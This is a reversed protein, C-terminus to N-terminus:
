QNAIANFILAMKKRVNRLSGEPNNITIAFAYKKGSKSHIYGAYSKIRRMTGSKAFVRGQGAQGKCIVKLTGSEGAVPLSNFFEKSYKATNMYYLLSTFHTASIANMRSLGCGDTLYISTFGLKNKWYSEIIELGKKSSGNGTKQYAILCVLHEAFLNISKFNTKNIIDILKEGSHTFILTRDTYDNQTLNMERVSKYDGNFKIESANLEQAFLYALQKEPDPLSGKVIFDEKNVPLTGTIFREMSFPAGYIYSNDGRKQSSLVYNHYMLEPVFPHIKVLVTPQNVKAGTKFHLQILNDGVTLGSPGAGYYNGMDVWSWGDPAGNYGFESADAIVNGAITKIGIKQLEKVWNQLFDYQHEESFFYKSGLSPDGGGRIWINGHLVGNSDINGDSYFRTKARYNPGLLELATATSFLKTTSATPMTREADFSYVTKKTSLDVLKFSVSANQHLPDEVFNQVANELTSQAFTLNVAYFLTILFLSLIKM